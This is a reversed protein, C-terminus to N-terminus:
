NRVKALVPVPGPAEMFRLGTVPAAWAPFGGGIALAHLWGDKPARDPCYLMAKVGRKALLAQAAKATKAEEIARIDKLGAGERHYNSAIIRYPTFFLVDGGVDPPAFLTLPADGLLKEVQQTEIVYRMQAMCVGAGSAQTPHTRMGLNVAIVLLWLCIYPRWGRPVPKLARRAGGAIGPLLAAAAIIAVPQLYYDWRLQAATMLFTGGLLLALLVLQRAREERLNKQFLALGLLVTALAPEMVQRLIDQPVGKFLPTAEAVNPLFDSIIFPDVDAMPGLFFRPYLAYMGLLVLSGILSAACFRAPLSLERRYFAALGCAGAATLWLLSVQVISLSDYTLRSAVEQPPVEVYLGTNAALAAGLAAAALLQMREPKLLGEGGLLAFVFGTVILAEPSIWTMVGLLLGIGGATAVSLSRNLMLLLVGCWLVCLLGHHDSDGPAFYDYVTTNCIWLLVACILVHRHQFLRQAASSMLALAGICLLPPLWTASLMLRVAASKAVPTFYYVLALLADLPRTWPTTIGGPPANTNRVTHDFFGGGAIWQRVQTLRMWVDPDPPQLPNKLQPFSLVQGQRTLAPLLM